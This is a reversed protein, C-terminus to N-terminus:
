TPRESKVITIPFEEPIKKVTNPTSTSEKISQIIRNLFEPYKRTLTRLAGATELQSRLHEFANERFSCKNKRCSSNHASGQKHRCDKIEV